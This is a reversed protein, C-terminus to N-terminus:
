QPNISEYLRWEDATLRLQGDLVVVRGGSNKRGYNDIEIQRLKRIIWSDGNCTKGCLDCVTEEVRLITSTVTKSIMRKM